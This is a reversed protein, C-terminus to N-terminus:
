WVGLYVLKWCLDCFYLIMHMNDPVITIISDYLINENKLESWDILITYQRLKNSM